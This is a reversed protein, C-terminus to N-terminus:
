FIDVFIEGNYYKYSVGPRKNKFRITVKSYKTNGNRANNYNNWIQIDFDEGQLDIKENLIVAKSQAGFPLFRANSAELVYLDNSIKRFNIKTGSYQEVRVPSNAKLGPSGVAFRLIQKIGTKLMNVREHKDPAGFIIIKGIDSLDYDKAHEIIRSTKSGAAMWSGMLNYDVKSAWLCILCFLLALWRFSAKGPKDHLQLDHLISAIIIILGISATLAYWRMFMTSVPIIFLIYWMLGFKFFQLSAKGLRRITRYAIIAAIAAIISTLALLIASDAIYYYSQQLFDPTHFSIPLYIVFNLLTSIFNFETINGSRLLSGGVFLWKYILVALVILFAIASHKVYTNLKSAKLGSLYYIVPFLVGAYAIEKTLVALLFFVAPLLYDAAKGTNGTFKKDANIYLTFSILLFAAAMVDGRGAIWAVAYEHSPLVAFLCSAILAANRGIGLARIFYGVSLCLLVYLFLNSARFPMPQFGFLWITLSHISNVLPRWFAGSIDAARFPNFCDWFGTPNHFLIIQFDDNIFPVNLVPLWPLGAFLIIAAPFIYEWHRENTKNKDRIIRANERIPKM